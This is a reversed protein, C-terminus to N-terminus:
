ASQNQQVGLAAETLASTLKIKEKETCDWHRVAHVIFWFIAINEPNFTALKVRITPKGM